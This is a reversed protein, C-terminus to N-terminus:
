LQALVAYSLLFYKFNSSAINNYFFYCIRSNLFMAKTTNIVDKEGWSYKFIPIPDRILFFFLITGM